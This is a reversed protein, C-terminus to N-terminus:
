CVIDSTLLVYLYVLVLGLVGYCLNGSGQSSLGVSLFRGVTDRELHSDFKSSRRSIGRTEQVKSVLGAWTM